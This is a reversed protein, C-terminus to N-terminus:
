SACSPLATVAITTAAVAGLGLGRVRGVFGRARGRGM